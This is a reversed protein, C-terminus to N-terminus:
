IYNPSINFFYTYRINPVVMAVSRGFYKSGGFSCCNSKKSIETKHLRTPVNADCWKIPDHCQM